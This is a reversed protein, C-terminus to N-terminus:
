QYKVSLFGTVTGTTYTGCATGSGILYTIGVNFNTPPGPLGNLLQVSGSAPIVVCDVVLAATLAGTSPITVSNYGILLGATATENTAYVFYVSGPAAKVQLGVSANATASTLGVLQQAVAKRVPDPTALTLLAALTVLFFLGLLLEKTSKM